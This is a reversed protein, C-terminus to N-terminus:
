FFEALEVAEGGAMGFVPMGLADLGGGARQALTEGIGHAHREGLLQQRLFQVSGLEGEDIMEGVHEAAVPVQHFADGVLGGGQGAM